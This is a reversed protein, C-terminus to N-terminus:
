GTIANRGAFYLLLLLAGIAGGLAVGLVGVLIATTILARLRRFFGIREKLQGRTSRAPGVPWGRAVRRAPRPWPPM